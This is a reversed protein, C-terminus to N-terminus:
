GSAYGTKRNTSSFTVESTVNQQKTVVCQVEIFDRRVSLNDTKNEYNFIFLLKYVTTDASQFKDINCQRNYLALFSGIYGDNHTKPSLICTGNISM